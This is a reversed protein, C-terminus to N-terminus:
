GRSGTSRWSPILVEEGRSQTRRPWATTASWRSSSGQGSLGNIAAIFPDAHAQDRDDGGLGRLPLTKGAALSWDVSTSLAAPGTIVRGPARGVRAVVETLQVGLGSRGREAGRAPETVRAVPGDLDLRVSPM